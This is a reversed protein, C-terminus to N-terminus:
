EKVGSFLSVAEEFDDAIKKHKVNFDLEGRTDRDTWYRGTVRRAPRGSIDMTTSGHHMRSVGEYKMKPKNFFMYHLASSGDSTTVGALSSGSKSENTLLTVNVLTATQRVVLYADKPDIKRGSPDIWSSELTGKWTGRLSVPVSPIMQCWPTRWLWLDWATFILTALFVAGSLYKIPGLDLAGSTVWSGLALFAILVAAGVRIAIKTRLICVGFLEM